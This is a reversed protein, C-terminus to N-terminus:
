DPSVSLYQFYQQGSSEYNWPVRTAFRFQDQEAGYNLSFQGPGEIVFLGADGLVSGSPNMCSADFRPRCFAATNFWELSTSQQALHQVGARCRCAAFWQRRPQHGREGRLMRRSIVPAVTVSGSWQWGNLVHSFVGKSVLWHDRRVAPEYMVPAPSSTSKISASLSRDAAIDFPDQAVVTRGIWYLLM